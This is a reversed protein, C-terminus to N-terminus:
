GGYNSEEAVAGLRESALQIIDQMHCIVMRGGELVHTGYPDGPIVTSAMPQTLAAIDEYVLPCVAKMLLYQRLVEQAAGGHARSLHKELSEGRLINETKRM